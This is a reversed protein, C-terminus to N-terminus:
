ESSWNWEASLHPLAHRDNRDACRRFEEALLEMQEVVQPCRRVLDNVEFRDDPKLYLQSPGPPSRKLLWGPTRLLLDEGDMTLAFSRNVESSTTVSRGWGAGCAPSGFWDCLTDAIDAPQVLELHRWGATSSDAVKWLLPVQVVEGFLPDARPSGRNDSSSAKNASGVLGHEGLPYGRTSSVAFALPGCSRQFEAVRDCFFGLAMDIVTIQAAHAQLWPFTVDPDHNPGLIAAPPSTALYPDPDGEDRFNSRIDLPADWPGSLGSSHVWLLFPSSLSALLDAARLMLRTFRCDEVSRCAVTSSSLPPSFVQDFEALEALPILSADDSILITRVGQERIARIVSAQGGATSQSAAHVNWWLSRYALNLDPSDTLCFEWLEAATALQNWNPTEILTNGYPGLHAAGLRDIMLVVASSLSPM